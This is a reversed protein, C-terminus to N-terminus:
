LLEKKENTGKCAKEKAMKTSEHCRHIPQNEKHM